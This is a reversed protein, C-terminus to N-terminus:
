GCQDSIHLLMHFNSPSGHLHNGEMGRLCLLETLIHEEMVILGSWICFICNQVGEIVIQATMNGSIAEKSLKGLSTKAM